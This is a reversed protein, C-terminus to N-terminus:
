DLIIKQIEKSTIQFDNNIWKEEIKKLKLGLIKGEPINYEEILTKAKIPM